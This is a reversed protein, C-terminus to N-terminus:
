EGFIVETKLMQARTDIKMRLYEMPRDGKIRNCNACLLQYNEYYDGGGKAKPLIHDVELHWIKFEEGCANCRGQQEKYLREKVTQSPMVIEMDTRKPIQETAIFDKFLIGSADTLRDVLINVVNKELDIGIWRRGLQQAAVCTTACGCFPDLVIDDVNSSALIIRKLLTLPKQTPYGTREKASQNIPPLEFWDLPLAGGKLYHRFTLEPNTKEWKPNVDRASKIPSNVIGRGMLRYKGKEDEHRYKKM